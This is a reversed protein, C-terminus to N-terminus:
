QIANSRGGGLELGMRRLHEQLLVNMPLRQLMSTLWLSINSPLPSKKFHEPLQKCFHSCLIFTLKDNSPHWDQLFADVSYNLKETFWQSNGKVDADTFVKAHHRVVDICTTAQIYNINQKVFNIKEDV